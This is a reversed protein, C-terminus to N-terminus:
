RQRSLPLRLWLLVRRLPGRRRVPDRLRARLLLISVAGQLMVEMRGDRAVHLGLFRHRISVLLQSRNRQLRLVVPANWIQRLMSERSLLMPDKWLM